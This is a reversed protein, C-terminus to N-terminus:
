IEVANSQASKVGFMMDSTLFMTIMPPSSSQQPAQSVDWGRLGAVTDGVADHVAQRLVVADDNDLAVRVDDPRRSGHALDNNRSPLLLVELDLDRLLAEERSAGTVTQQRGVRNHLQLLVRDHQLLRELARGLQGELYAEQWRDNSM